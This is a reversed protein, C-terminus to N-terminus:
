LAIQVFLLGTDLAFGVPRAGASITATVLGATVTSTYYVIGPTLGGIFQSLGSLFIFEGYNGAKVGGTTNCVGQPNIGTKGGAKKAIIQNNAGAAFGVIIGAGLDENAVCYLKNSGSSGLSQEPTIQSYASPSVPVHGTYNDLADQMIHLANYVHVMERFVEPTKAEPTQSLGLSFSNQGQFAM